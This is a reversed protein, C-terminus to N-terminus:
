LATLETRVPWALAGVNGVSGAPQFEHQLVLTYVGQRDGCLRYGGGQATIVVADGGVAQVNWATDPGIHKQLDLCFGQRMNTSVVLRQEARLRDDVAAELSIPHLDQLVRVVPPIVVRIRVTASASGGHIGLTSEAQSTLPSFLLCLGAMLSLHLQRLTSM